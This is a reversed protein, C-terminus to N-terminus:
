VPIAISVIDASLATATAIVLKYTGNPLNMAAFGDATFATQVTVYTSTGPVLRQLTASGGGWTATITLAYLGGRLIFATPTASISAFAVSEISNPGGSM